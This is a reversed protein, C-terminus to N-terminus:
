RVPASALGGAQTRAPHYPSSQGQELRQAIFAIVRREAYYVPRLPNWGSVFAAHGGHAPFEVELDSNDRVIRAVDHLVAPPLFPDDIASLLLTPVGIRALFRISSSQEYYDAADRFGHVPATVVDDFAWISDLARIADAAAFGPYRGLKELAKERLTRLFHREYVRAFGEHIHRAARALDFPVSVAVAAAIDERALPGKEGLWKLLVNGGLSVGAAALPAAPFESRIRRVVFDFDTTEGSHYFRRTRNPEGGCGRFILLDAGWGRRAAERLLGLAYKSRGSGELGHLLLVRPQDAPADVRVLDLFDGDPTEIRETRTPVVPARRVLKPWLTHSHPDPLWWAPRFAMAAPIPLLTPPPIRFIDAPDPSRTSLANRMGPRTRGARASGPGRSREV